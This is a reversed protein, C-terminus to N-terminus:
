YFEVLLAPINALTVYNVMQSVNFSAHKARTLNLAVELQLNM